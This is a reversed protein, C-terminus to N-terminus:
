LVETRAQSPDLDLRNEGRRQDTIRRCYKGSIEVRLGFLHRALGHRPINAFIPSLQSTVDSAGRNGGRRVM